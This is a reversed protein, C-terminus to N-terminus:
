MMPSSDLRRTRFKSGAQQTLCCKVRGPGGPHEEERGVKEDALAFPAPLHARLPLFRPTPFSPDGKRQHFPSPPASPYPSSYSAFCGFSAPGRQPLSAVWQRGPGRKGLFKGRPGSKLEYVKRTEREWGLQGEKKEEGNPHSTVTPLGAAARVEIRGAALPCQHM